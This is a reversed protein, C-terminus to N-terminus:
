DVSHEERAHFDDVGRWRNVAQRRRELEKTWVKRGPEFFVSAALSNPTKAQERTISATISAKRAPRAASNRM